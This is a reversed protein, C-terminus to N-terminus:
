IGEATERFYDVKESTDKLHDLEENLKMNTEELLKLKAEANDARSEARSLKGKVDDIVDEMENIESCLANDQDTEDASVKVSSLQFDSERLQNELSTVKERLTFVESNALVSNNEAESLSAKLNDTQAVLLNLKTSRCDFKQLAIEKAELQDTSNELKTRLEAERQISGNLNLQFIQLRLLLEKSIGMLVEAANEAGFWKECIDMMEEEKFFIEQEM